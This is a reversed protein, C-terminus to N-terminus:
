NVRRDTESGSLRTTIQAAVQMAVVQADFRSTKESENIAISGVISIANLSAQKVQQIHGAHSSLM